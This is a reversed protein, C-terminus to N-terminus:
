DYDDEMKDADEFYDMVALTELHVDAEITNNCRQEARWSIRLWNRLANWLKEYNKENDVMM